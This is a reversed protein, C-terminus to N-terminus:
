VGLLLPLCATISFTNSEGWCSMHWGGLCLLILTGCPALRPHKIAPSSQSLQISANLIKEFYALAIFRTTPRWSQTNAPGLALAILWSSWARSVSSPQCMLASVFPNARYVQAICPPQVDGLAEARGVHMTRWLHAAAVHMPTRQGKVQLTGERTRTM